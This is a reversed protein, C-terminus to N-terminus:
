RFSIDRNHLHTKIIQLIWIIVIFQGTLKLGQTLSPHQYYTAPIHYMIQSHEIPSLYILMICIVPSKLSGFLHPMEDKVSVMFAQDVETTMTVGKIIGNWSRLMVQRQQM